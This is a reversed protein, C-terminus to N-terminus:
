EALAQTTDNNRVYRDIFPTIYRAWIAYGQEKPHLLDPMYERPLMGSDTLFAENINIFEANHRAAVEILLQNAQENNIRMPDNPTAGRPFIAFLVVPTHPATQRIQKLNESVGAAIAQPSDMRHGTNNTGIMVIVLKPASRPMENHTLRWLLNETRDGAFGLNLMRVDAFANDWVSKGARSWGETISDGLMVVDFRNDKAQAVRQKHRPLWWSQSWYENLVRPTTALTDDTKCEMTPEEQGSIQINAIRVSGQGGTELNFWRHVRTLDTDKSTLCHLPIAIHQWTTPSSHVALERLHMKPYCHSVCAMSISIAAQRADAVQLDFSLVGQNVYGRLDTAPGNIFLGSGSGGSFQLDFVQGIGDYQHRTLAVTNGPLVQTDGPVKLVQQRDHIFVTSGSHLGSVEIDPLAALSSGAWLLCALWLCRKLWRKCVSKVVFGSRM